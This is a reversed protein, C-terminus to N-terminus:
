PKQMKYYYLVSWFSEPSFVPHSIFAGATASEIVLDSYVENDPAECVAVMEVGKQSLSLKKLGPIADTFKMNFM